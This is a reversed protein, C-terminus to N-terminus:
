PEGVKQNKFCGLNKNNAESDRLKSRRRGPVNREMEWEWEGTKVTDNKDKCRQESNM